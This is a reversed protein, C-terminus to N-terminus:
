VFNSMKKNRYTICYRLAHIIQGTLSTQKRSGNTTIQDFLNQAVLNVKTCCFIDSGSAFTQTEFALGIFQDFHQVFKEFYNLCLKEGVM